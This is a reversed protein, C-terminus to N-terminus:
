SLALLEGARQRVLGQYLVSRHPGHAPQARATNPAFGLGRHVPARATKGPLTDLNGMSCRCLLTASHFARCPVTCAASQQRTRPCPGHGSLPVAAMGM